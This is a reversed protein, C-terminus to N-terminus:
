NVQDELWFARFLGWFVYKQLKLMLVDTKKPSFTSQPSPHAYNEVHKRFGLCKTCVNRDHEPIKLKSEWPHLTIRTNAFDLSRYSTFKSLFAITCFEM